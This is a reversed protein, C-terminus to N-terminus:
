KAVHQVIETRSKDVGFFSTLQDRQGFTHMRQGYVTTKTCGDDHNQQLHRRRDRKLRHRDEVGREKRCEDRSILDSRSQRGFRDRVITAKGDYRRRRRHRRRLPPWAATPFCHSEHWRGCWRAARRECACASKRVGLRAERPLETWCNSHLHRGCTIAAEGGRVVSLHHKVDSKQTTM